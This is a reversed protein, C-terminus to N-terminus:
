HSGADVNRRKLRSLAESALERIAQVDHGSSVVDLYAAAEEGGIAGVADIIRRMMDLDRFQALDILKPVAQEERLAVLAGIAGDRKLEDDSKLLELLRPVTGRLHREGITAFAAQRLSPDDSDLAHLIQAEDGRRIAQKEVLSKAARDIACELLATTAAALHKAGPEDGDCAAASWPAFAEDEVVWVVALGAGARLRGATREIGVEVRLRARRRTAGLNADGATATEFDTSQTLTEWIRGAVAPGTPEPGAEPLWAAVTVAVDDIRIIEVGAPAADPPSEARRAVRRSCSAALVFAVALSMRRM